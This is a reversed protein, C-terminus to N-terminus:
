LEPYNIVQNLIALSDAVRKLEMEKELKKRQNLSLRELEKLTIDCKVVYCDPYLKRIKNLDPIADLKSKYNGVRIKFDPVTYQLYAPINPYDNEFKDRIAELQEIQMQASNVSLIQIRFGSFKKANQKQLIHSKMMVGVEAPVYLDAVGGNASTDSLAELIDYVITDSNVSDKTITDAAQREKLHEWIEMATQAKASFGFLTFFVFLIIYRM